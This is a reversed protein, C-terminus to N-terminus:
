ARKRWDLPKLGYKKMYYSVSQPAVHCKEAIEKGTMTKAMKTLEDKTFLSCRGRKKPTNPASKELKELGKGWERIKMGVPCKSICLHSAGTNKSQERYSSVIECGECHSQELKGIEKIIQSVKERNM